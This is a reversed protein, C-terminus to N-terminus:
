RRRRLKLALAERAIRLRSAATYPNMGRAKAFAVLSEPRDVALLMERQWPKLQALAELDARADIHAELSPGAPERLVGLPQAHLVVRRVYASNVHHSVKRWAIGHIWARLARRPDESPDPRYMGREVSRWAGLLVQQEVDPRDRAPVGSSILVALILSREALIAHITPHAAPHPQPPQPQDARTSRPRDTSSRRARCQLLRDPHPTPSDISPDIQQGEEPRPRLKAM